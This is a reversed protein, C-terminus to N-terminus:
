TRKEFEHRCRPCTVIIRKGKHPKRIRVYTRCNPCRYYRHTKRDRWMNQYLRFKHAISNKIKLYRNLENQRKYINRSIIRFWAWIIAASGLIYLFYMHPFWSILMLILGAIVLFRSFEDYGYRGQMFMSLRYGLSLLWKKM